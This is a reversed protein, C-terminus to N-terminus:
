EDTEKDSHSLDEEDEDERSSLHVPLLIDALQHGETQCVWAAGSKVGIDVM